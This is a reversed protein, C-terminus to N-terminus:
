AAKAPKPKKFLFSPTVIAVGFVVVMVDWSTAVQVLGLREAGGYILLGTTTLLLTWWSAEFMRRRLYEDASKLVRFTNVTRVVVFVVIAAYSWWAPWDFAFTLNPLVLAIGLVFILAAQIRAQWAEQPTSEGEVQIREGLLRPNFSEYLLRGAALVCVLAVGLAAQDAWRTIYVHGGRWLWVVVACVALYYIWMVIMRMRRAAALKPDSAHTISM